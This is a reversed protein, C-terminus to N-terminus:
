EVEFVHLLLRARSAAAYLFARGQFLDDRRVDVIVAVDSELGKFKHITTCLVAGARDLPDTSLRQGAILDLGQLCSNEKTHAAIITIRGPAIRQEDVLEAVLRGVADAAAARGRPQRHFAPPEGEPSRLFAPAAREALTALHRAIRRTNRFNM